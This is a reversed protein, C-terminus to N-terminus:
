RQRDLWEVVQVSHTRGDACDDIDNMHKAIGGDCWIRNEETDYESWAPETDNPATYTTWGTLSKVGDESGRRRLADIGEFVPHASSDPINTTCGSGGDIKDSLLAFPSDGNMESIYSNAIDPRSSDKDDATFLFAGGRDYVDAAASFDSSTPENAPTNCGVVIIAPSNENIAQEMTTGSRDTVHTTELGLDSAVYDSFKQMSDYQNDSQAYTYFLVSGGGLGVGSEYVLESAGTNPVPTGSNYVFETDGHSGTDIAEGSEYVFDSPAM